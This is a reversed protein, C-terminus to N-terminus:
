WFPKARFNRGLVSNKGEIATGKCSIYLVSKSRHRPRAGFLIYETNGLYLSLQNDILWENIVSLEKKLLLEINSVDKDSVLIASENAYLLLKENLAGAMDNVFILFLLPGLM